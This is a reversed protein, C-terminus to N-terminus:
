VSVAVLVEPEAVDVAITVMVADPPVNAIVVVEHGPPICPAAYAPQM